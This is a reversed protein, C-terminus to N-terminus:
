VLTNTLDHEKRFAKFFRSGREDLQQLIGIRLFITATGVGQHSNATLGWSSSLERLDQLHPIRGICPIERVRKKQEMHTELCPWNKRSQLARPILDPRAEWTASTTFFGGALAPSTLSESKIGPDPLNRPSHFPLGSWYEQRSFEVSLSVQCVVTWLSAFLQVRSFLSLM